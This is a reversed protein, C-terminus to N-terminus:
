LVNYQVTTYCLIIDDNTNLSTSHKRLAPAVEWAAGIYLYILLYIYVCNYM